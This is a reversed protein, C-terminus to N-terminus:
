PQKPMLHSGKLVDLNTCIGTSNWSFYVYSSSEISKASDILAAVTSTCTVTTAASNTAYCRVSEAGSSAAFTRCYINQVADASGRASGFAGYATRAVTDITVYFTSKSGAFAAPLAILTALVLASLRALRKM